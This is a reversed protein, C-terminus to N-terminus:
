GRPDVVMALLLLDAAPTKRVTAWAEFGATALAVAELADSRWVPASLDYDARHRMDQLAVFAAAVVQIEPALVMGSQALWRPRSTRHSSFANAAEKMRSHTMSRRVLNQHVSREKAAVLRTAAEDLLLHSLAYYAASIARRVSAQRPRRPENTALQRAQQLLDAHLSM